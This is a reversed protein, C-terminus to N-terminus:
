FSTNQLRTKRPNCEPRTEMQGKAVRNTIEQPTIKCFTRDHSSSSRFQCVNYDRLTVYTQSSIHQIVVSHILNPCISFFSIRFRSILSISPSFFLFGPISISYLSFFIKRPFLPTLLNPNIFM